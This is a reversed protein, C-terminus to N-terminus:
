RGELTEIEACIEHQWEVDDTMSALLSLNYLRTLKWRHRDLYAICEGLERLEMVELERRRSALMLEIFRDAVVNM